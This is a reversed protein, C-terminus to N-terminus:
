VSLARGCHRIAALLLFAPWLNAERLSCRAESLVCVSRSYRGFTARACMPTCGALPRARAPPTERVAAHNGFGRAFPPARLSGASGFAANPHHAGRYASLAHYVCASRIGVERSRSGGTGDEASGRTRWRSLRAASRAINASAIVSSEGAQWSGCYPSRLLGLSPLEPPASEDVARVLGRSAAAAPFGSERALAVPV